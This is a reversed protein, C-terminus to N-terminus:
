RQQQPFSFFCFTVDNVSAGIFLRFIYELKLRIKSCFLSRFFKKYVNVYMLSDMSEVIHLFELLGASILCISYIRKFEYMYTFSKVFGFVETLFAKLVGTKLDWDSFCKPLMPCPSSCFKSICLLGSLPFNQLDKSSTKWPLVVTKREGGGREQGHVM